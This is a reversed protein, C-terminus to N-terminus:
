LDKGHVPWATAASGHPKQYYGRIKLGSPSTGQWTDSNLPISNYYTQKLLDVEHVPWATDVSHEFFKYSGQIKLGSPSTGQWIQTDILNSNYFAETVEHEIRRRTWDEPYFTSSGRKPVWDGTLPDRIKIKAKVVGNTDAERQLVQKDYVQGQLTIIKSSISIIDLTNILYVGEASEPFLKYLLDGKFWELVLKELLEDHEECLTALSPYDLERLRDLETWEGLEYDTDDREGEIFDEYESSFINLFEGHTIKIEYLLSEKGIIPQDFNMLRRMIKTSSTINKAIYCKM